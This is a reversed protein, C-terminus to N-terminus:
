VADEADDVSDADVDGGDLDVDDLEIELEDLLEISAASAGGGIAKGARAFQLVNLALTIGGGKQKYGIVAVVARGYDGSKLSEIQEDSLAKKDPGLVKPKFKSKVTIYIHNAYPKSAEKEMDKEDGDKFPNKFEKISKINPNGFFERAEMIVIQRLPKGEEQWRDKNFLLDFKYKNDSYERGTDPKTLYLYNLVGIPTTALKVKKKTAVTNKPKDKTVEQTTAMYM